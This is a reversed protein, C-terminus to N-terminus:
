GRSGRKRSWRRSGRKRRRTRKRVPEKKMAENEELANPVSIDDEEEPYGLQQRKKVLDVIMQQNQLVCLMLFLALPLVILWLM